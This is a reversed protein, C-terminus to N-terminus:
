KTALAQTPKSSLEESPLLSVPPRAASGMQSLKMRKAWSPRGTRSKSTGGPTTITRTSGEVPKSAPFEMGPRSSGKRSPVWGVASAGGGPCTSGSRKKRSSSRRPGLHFVGAPDEEPGDERGRARGHGRGFSVGERTQCFSHGRVHCRELWFG